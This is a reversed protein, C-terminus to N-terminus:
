YRSYSLNCKCCLNLRYKQFFSKIQFITKSNFFKNISKIGRKKAFDSVNKSPEFGVSNIKGKFNSLFTGDNSGIEIINSNQKIFKKCWDSYSKFHEIM